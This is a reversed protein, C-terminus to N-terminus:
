LILQMYRHVADPAPGERYSEYMEFLAQTVSYVEELDCTLGELWPQLNRDTLAAAVVMCGIAIIYPPHVLSEDTRYSDNLVAWACEAIDLMGANKLFTMLDQYPSFVVLNFDLEEMIAMELDLLDKMELAPMQQYRGSANLKKMFHFLAKAQAQAEEAKAALYLCAPAVSRPDYECLCRRVYFRRLYVCATAVVRRRVYSQSSKALDEIYQVVFAKVQHVHERSLGKALDQAHAEQLREPALLWRAHSSSWFDAAVM